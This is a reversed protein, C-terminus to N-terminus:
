RTPTFRWNLDDLDHWTVEGDDHEVCAPAAIGQTFDWESVTGPYWEREAAWWVEMPLGVVGQATESTVDMPDFEEGM